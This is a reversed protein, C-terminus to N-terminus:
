NLQQSLLCLKLFQNINGVPRDGTLHNNQKKGRGAKRQQRQCCDWGAQFREPKSAKGSLRVEMTRQSVRTDWDALWPWRRLMKRLPDDPDGTEIEARERPTDSPRVLNCDLIRKCRSRVRNRFCTAFLLEPFRMM